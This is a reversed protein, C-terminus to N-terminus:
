RGRYERYWAVFRPVGEDIATTPEFGLDRTIAGIDAYTDRVDGPQLPLLLKEAERGCAREILEIFRGLEESRSNGINYLRHPAVSGGAKEAGDDPPPSDLAALVGGVVDDIWTFDRRMDGEGSSETRVDTMEKLTMHVIRRENPPM